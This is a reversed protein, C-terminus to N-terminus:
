YSKIGHLVLEDDDVLVGAVVESREQGGDGFVGLSGEGFYVAFFNALADQGLGVLRLVWFWVVQPGAAVAVVVICSKFLVGRSLGVVDIRVKHLGLSLVAVFFPAGAVLLM